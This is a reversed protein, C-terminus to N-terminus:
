CYERWTLEGALQAPVVSSAPGLETFVAFEVAATRAAGIGSREAAYLFRNDSARRVSLSWRASEGEVCFALDHWEARYRRRIQCFDEM